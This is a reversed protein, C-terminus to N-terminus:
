GGEIVRRWRKPVGAYAALYTAELPVNVYRGPAFFLPMDILLTGAATPEVYCTVAGGGVDRGAADPGGVTYAALALPKDAPPDYRGGLRRWLVGHMGGPDAATPPLLDLVLLHYGEDLAGVAKDVFAEVGARKEKNGPSVIELLAVIRDGTTHRIVLRRRRAALLMAETVTDRVAMPPPATAVALGGGTGGTGSQDDDGDAWGPGDGALGGGATPGGSMDQLTLVDPIVQGAVQEAMVYYADPLLDANLARRLEAIWATHFDHFTGASVRTWDHIPMPM